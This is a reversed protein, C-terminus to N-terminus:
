VVEVGENYVPSIELEEALDLKGRNLCLEYGEKESIYEAHSTEQYHEDFFMLVLMGRHRCLGIHGNENVYDPVHSLTLNDVFEVVDVIKNGDYLPIKIM